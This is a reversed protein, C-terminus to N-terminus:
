RKRLDFWLLEIGGLRTTRVFCNTSHSDFIGAKLLRESQKKFMEQVIKNKEKGATRAYEYLTPLRVSEMVVFYARSGPISLNMYHEITKLGMRRAAFASEIEKGDYQSAKRGVKFVFEKGTKLTIRFIGYRTDPIKPHPNKRSAIRQVTGEPITIRDPVKEPTAYNEGFHTFADIIERNALVIKRGKRTWAIEIRPFIGAIRKTKLTRRTPKHEKAAIRNRKRFFTILRAAVKEIMKKVCYDKKGTVHM